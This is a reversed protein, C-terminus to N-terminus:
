CASQAIPTEIGPMALPRTLASAQDRAATTSRTM